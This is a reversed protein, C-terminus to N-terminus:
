IGGLPAWQGGWPLHMGCYGSLQDASGEPPHASHPPPSPIQCLRRRRTGKAGATWVATVAAGRGCLCYAHPKEASCNSCELRFSPDAPPDPAAGAVRGHRPSGRPSLTGPWGAREHRRPRESLISIDPVSSSSVMRSAFRYLGHGEAGSLGLRTRQLMRAGAAARCYRM